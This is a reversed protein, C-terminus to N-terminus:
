NVLDYINRSPQSRKREPIRSSKKEKEDRGQSRGRGRSRGRREEDNVKRQRTRNKREKNNRDHDSNSSEDDSSFSDKGSRHRVRAVREEGPPRNSRSRRRKTIPETSDSATFEITHSKKQQPKKNSKEQLDRTHNKERIQLKDSPINVAPINQRILIQHGPLDHAKSPLTKLDEVQFINKEPLPRLVPVDIHRPLNNLPVVGPPQITSNVIPTTPNMLNPFPGTQFQNSIPQRLVPTNVKDSNRDFGFRRRLYTRNRRMIGSVNSSISGLFGHSKTLQKDHGIPSNLNIDFMHDEKTSIHIGLIDDNGGSGSKNKEKDSKREQKVQFGSSKNFKKWILYASGGVISIALSLLIPWTPFGSRVREPTKFKNEKNMSLAKGSITISSDSFFSDYLRLEEIFSPSMIAEESVSILASDQRRKSEANVRIMVYLTFGKAEGRRSVHSGVHHDSSTFLKRLSKSSGVLDQSEVNINLVRMNVNTYRDEFYSSLFKKFTKEFTSITKSEMLAPAHLITVYM